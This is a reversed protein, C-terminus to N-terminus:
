LLFSVALNLTLLAAVPMALRRFFAQFTTHFTELTVLVCPHLPSIMYGLFVSFYFVVFVSAPMAEGGFKALYIPLIVSFSVPIRGTLFALIFAAPVLLLAQSYEVTAFWGPISTAKFTELFFFM